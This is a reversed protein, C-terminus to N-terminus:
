LTFYFTAGVGSEGEAWVRGGHLSMVRRVIALGIGSGEFEDQAHLRQFSGFLKHAYKMDFGAGNDRVFVAERGDCLCTGVEIRARERRSTFKWANALLNELAIAFLRPDAQVSIGDKVALDACRQPQGDQLQRLIERALASVNVDARRVDTRTIRSLKLLDDILQSMRFTNRQIRGLYDRATTDLVQAWRDVLLRSFGEISRLPARLDHSVSYSFSELEKNTQELQLTRQAVRMELEANLQRLELEARRRDSIDEVV